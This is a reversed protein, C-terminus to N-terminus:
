VRAVDVLDALGTAVQDLLDAGDLGNGRAPV